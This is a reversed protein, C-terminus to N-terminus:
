RCPTTVRTCTCAVPICWWPCATSSVWSFRSAIARSPFRRRPSGTSIATRSTACWAFASVWRAWVAAWCSPSRISWPRSAGHPSKRLRRTWSSRGKEKCLGSAPRTGGGCASRWCLLDGTQSLRLGHAAGIVLQADCCAPGARLNPVFFPRSTGPQRLMACRSWFPPRPPRNRDYIALSCCRQVDRGSRSVCCRM